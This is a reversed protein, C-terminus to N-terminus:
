KKKLVDLINSDGSEFVTIASIPFPKKCASGLEISTGEFVVLPVETLEAHQKIDMFTDTSCNQSLVIMKGKGTRANKLASRSGVEVKGTKTASKLATEIDM